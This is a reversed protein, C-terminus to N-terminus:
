NDQLLLHARCLTQMRGPVPQLTDAPQGCQECLQGSAEVAAAILSSQTESLRFAYFRLQGLKEKIQRAQVQPAGYEDTERQLDTCLADLLDRWGVRCDIRVDGLIRPHRARLESWVAEDSEM